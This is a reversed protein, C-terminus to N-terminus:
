PAQVAQYLPTASGSWPAWASIIGSGETDLTTSGLVNWTKSDMSYMLRVTGGPKGYCLYTYFYQRWWGPQYQAMGTVPPNLWWFPHTPPSYYGRFFCSAGTGQGVFVGTGNTGISASGAPVWSVLNTSMEMDVVRGPTGTLPVAIGQAAKGGMPVPTGLVLIRDTALLTGTALDFTQVLPTGNTDSLSVYVTGPSKGLVIVGNLVMFGHATDVAYVLNSQALYWPDSFLSPFGVRVGTIRPVRIFMSSFMPDEVELYPFSLNTEVGEPAVWNTGEQVLNFVFNTARHYVRNTDYTGIGSVLLDYSFGVGGYGFNETEADAWAVIPENHYPFIDSQLFDEYPIGSYNTGIGNLVDHLTARALRVLDAMNTPSYFPSAVYGIQPDDNHSLPVVIIGVQHVNTVAYAMATARDGIPLSGLQAFAVGECLLWALVMARIGSFFLVSPFKSKSAGRNVSFQKEM